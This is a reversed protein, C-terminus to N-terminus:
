RANVPWAVTSSARLSAAALILVMRGLLYALVPLSLGTNELRATSTSEIAEAARENNLYRCACEGVDRSWRSGQASRFLVEAAQFAVFSRDGIAGM